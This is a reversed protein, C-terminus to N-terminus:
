PVIPFSMPFSLDLVDRVRRLVDRRAPHVRRRETHAVLVSPHSPDAASNM